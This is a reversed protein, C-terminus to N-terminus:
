TRITKKTKNQETIALGTEVSETGCRVPISSTSVIGGFERVLIKM